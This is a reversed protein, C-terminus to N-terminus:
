EALYIGEEKADVHVKVATVVHKNPRAAAL